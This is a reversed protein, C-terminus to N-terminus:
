LLSAERRRMDRVRPYLGEPLGKQADNSDKIETIRGNNGSIRM